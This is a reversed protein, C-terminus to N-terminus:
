HAVIRDRCCPDIKMLKAGNKGGFHAFDRFQWLIYGQVMESKSLGVIDWFRHVRSCFNYSTICADHISM